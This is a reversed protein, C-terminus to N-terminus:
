APKGKELADLVREPTLPLSAVRVGIANAVANGIAAEPASELPKGAGTKLHIVLEGADRLGAIKYSEFDGGLPRGTVPDFVKEECLARSVGLALHDRLRGEAEKADAEPARDQVAVLKVVRVLGTEVDVAVDAMQVGGGLSLGLGRRVSRKGADGRAHWRQRWGMLRDAIEIAEVSDKEVAGALGLNLLFFDVPNMALLAALDDLATMTFFCAQNISPAQPATNTAVATHRHRQDPVTFLHPLQLDGPGGSSFSRSLWVALKGDASAGLEVQAIVAPDGGGVAIEAARELVLKVPARAARAAEACALEWPAAGADTGICVGGRPELGLRAVAPLKYTGKFRIPVAALAADPEQEPAELGLRVEIAHPLVEYQVAIARVADGAREESVAAVIAVEDLAWLIEAGPKKLLRVSKVGPMKEAASAYLSTVRAHAHPCRLFAAHLTGPPKLDSDFRAAGTVQAPDVV